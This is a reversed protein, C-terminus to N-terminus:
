TLNAHTLATYTPGAASLRSQYLTVHDIAVRAVPKHTDIALSRQRDAPRSTKWRALTLHPHFPRGELAVGLRELRRAVERQVEVIQEAGEEVGLWLIRPAGRLPFVGVGQFEADFQPVEITANLTNVVPPVNSDAIEGLFALTLHMRAPDVTKLSREPGLATAIRQQLAAVARRAGEDVDIAVFLRV